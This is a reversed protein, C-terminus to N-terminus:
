RADEGNEHTATRDTSTQDTSTQDTSTRDTDLAALRQALAQRGRHLHVKVTAPRCDLVDAIDAVSRDELYHLAVCAAQREPLSRVAAWFAPDGVHDTARDATQDRDAGAEATSRADWRALGTREVVRHRHLSTARNIVARRVWAGPRDLRGVEAWRRFADAFADQVLEEAAAWSGTLSWGLAVLGPWESRYLDDFGAAETRGARRDSRSGRRRRDSLDLVVAPGSGPGVAPETAAAGPDPVARVPPDTTMSIRVESTNSM